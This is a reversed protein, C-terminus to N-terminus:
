PLVLKPIFLMLIGRGRGCMTCIIYLQAHMMAEQPLLYGQYRRLSDRSIACLLQLLQHSVACLLSVSYM